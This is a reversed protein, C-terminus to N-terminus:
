PVKFAGCTVSTVATFTVTLTSGYYATPFPGIMRSEGAPVVVERDSITLGDVTGPTALTVTIETGANDVHIFTKKGDNVVTHGDANAATMVPKLGARVIPQVALVTTPM